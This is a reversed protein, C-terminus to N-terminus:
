YELSVTSVVLESRCPHPNWQVDAVEWPTQHRLFRPSDYPNELDIIFLGKRAGLAVDRNAPSISMSGISEKITIEYHRGFTGGEDEAGGSQQDESADAHTRTRSRSRSPEAIHEWAGGDGRLFPEDFEPETHSISENQQESVSDLTDSHVDVVQEEEESLISEREIGERDVSRRGRSGSGCGSGSGSGSTERRGTNVELVRRGM